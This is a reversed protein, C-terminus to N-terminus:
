LSFSDPVIGSEKEKDMLINDSKSFNRTAQAISM